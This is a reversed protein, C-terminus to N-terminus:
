KKRYPNLKDLSNAIRYVRWVPISFVNAVVKAPCGSQIAPLVDSYPNFTTDKKNTPIYLLGQWHKQVESLLEAPLVDAAHTYLPMIVRLVKKSSFFVNRLEPDYTLRSANLCDAVSEPMINKMIKTGHLANAAHEWRSICERM